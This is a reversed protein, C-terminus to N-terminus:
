EVREVSRVVGSDCICSCCGAKEKVEMLETVFLSKNIRLCIVISSDEASLASSLRDAVCAGVGARVDAAAGPGEDVKKSVIGCGM